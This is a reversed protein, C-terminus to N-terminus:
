EAGQSRVGPVQSRMETGDTRKLLYVRIPDNVSNPFTELMVVEYNKYIEQRLIQHFVDWSYYVVVWYRDADAPLNALMGKVLPRLESEKTKVRYGDWTVIPADGAYYRPLANKPEWELAYLGIADGERENTEILHAIGKWDDHYLTTYYHRLGGGLGILYLTAVLVAGFRARQRIREFGAAILLLVYPAVFILYRAVWLSGLWYSVVLICLAPILGWAALFLLKPNRQESHAQQLAYVLGVGFVVCVVITAVAYFAFVMENWGLRSLSFHLEARTPLDTLPWFMTFETLMGTLRMINPKPKSSVWDNFFSEFRSSLAFAIPLTAAGILLMAGGMALFLRLRRRTKWAFILGDPILLLANLPTTLIALIRLAAWGAIRLPRPADIMHVFALTGALTLFTSLAYMRIEQGYGVFLPSLTAMAAAIGAAKRSMLRRGLLYVLVVTASSFLLSLSRLWLDSNGFWMWFHLLLYYLPRTGLRLQEADRISFQEDIWVSELGLQYLRLASALVLMLLLAIREGVTSAVWSQLMGGNTNHGSGMPRAGVASSVWYRMHQRAFDKFLKM